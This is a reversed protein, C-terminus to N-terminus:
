HVELLEKELLSSLSKLRIMEFINRAIAEGQGREEAELGPYTQTDIL